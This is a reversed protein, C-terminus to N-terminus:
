TAFPLRDRGCLVCLQPSFAHFRYPRLDQRQAGDPSRRPETTTRRMNRLPQRQARRGRRGRRARRHNATWVITSSPLGSSTSSGFATKDVTQQAIATVPVGAGRRHGRRRVGRVGARQTERPPTGAHPPDIPRSRSADSLCMASPPRAVSIGRAYARTGGREPQCPGAVL